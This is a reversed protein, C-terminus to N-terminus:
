IIIEICLIKSSNLYGWGSLYAQRDAFTDTANFPLCVATVNENFQISSNLRLLAIDHRIDFDFGPHFYGKYFKFTQRAPNITDSLKHAGVVITVLDM